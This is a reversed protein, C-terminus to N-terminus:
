RVIIEFINMFINEFHLCDLPATMTITLYDLM